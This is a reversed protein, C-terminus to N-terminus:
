RGSAPGQVVLVVRRNEKEYDSKPFDKGLSAGELNNSPAGATLLANRVADWRDQGLKVNYNRSAEKSAHGQVQVKCMPHAKIWRAMGIIGDRYEDKVNAKAFDFYITLSPIDCESATTATNSASAPAPKLPLLQQLVSALPTLDVEVKITQVPPAASEHQPAASDNTKPPEQAVPRDLPGDNLAILYFEVPDENKTKSSGLSIGFAGSGGVNNDATVSSAAGLGGSIIKTHFVGLTRRQVAVRRTNTEMVLKKLTPIFAADDPYGDKGTGTAEAIKLDNGYAIVDPQWNILCVQEIPKTRVVPAREKYIRIKSHGRSTAM